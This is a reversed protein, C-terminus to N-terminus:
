PGGRLIQDFLKKIAVDKRLIPLVAVGNEACIGVRGNVDSEEPRDRFKRLHVTLEQMITECERSVSLARLAMCTLLSIGGIVASHVLDFGLLIFPANSFCAYTVLRELSFQSRRNLVAHTERSAWELDRCLLIFDDRLRDDVKMTAPDGRIVALLVQPDPSPVVAGVRVPPPKSRISSVHQVLHDIYRSEKPKGM